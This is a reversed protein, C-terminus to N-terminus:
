RSPEGRDRHRHDGARRLRRCRHVRSDEAPPINDIPALLRRNNLWDVWELTAYEVAEFSRWPGRRHGAGDTVLCGQHRWQGGARHSLRSLPQRAGAYGRASCQAEVAQALLDKMFPRDRIMYLQSWFLKSAAQAVEGITCVSVMSLTFPVNALNVARM